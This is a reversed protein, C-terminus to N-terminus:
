DWSLVVEEIPSTFDFRDERKYKIEPYVRLGNPCVVTIPKDKYEDSIKELQRILDRVSVM